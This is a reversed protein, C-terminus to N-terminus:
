KVGEHINGLKDNEEKFKKGTELIQKNIDM